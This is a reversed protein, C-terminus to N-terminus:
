NVPGAVSWIMRSPQNADSSNSSYSGNAMNAPQIQAETWAFRAVHGDAFLLNGGGNHRTTFRRWDAKTQGINGVYGATSIQPGASSSTYAGPFKTNYLQVDKYKYEGPNNIKEVMVVISAASKLQTMKAATTETSTNIASTLKSNWVYNSAFPFFGRGVLGGVFMQEPNAASETGYLLFYGNKVTQPYITSAPAASPCIFINRIGEKPLANRGNYDDWVMEFYSKGNVLPPIANFWLSPDDYGIVDNVPGFIQTPSSGDPGKQPLAGRNQGSYMQIGVGFQRLNSMCVIVNASERARGLAPLLISILLAIIGIVVLLEVLTFGAAKRVRFMIVGFASLLVTEPRPGLRAQAVALM